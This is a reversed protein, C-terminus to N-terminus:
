AQRRRMRVVVGNEHCMTLTQRMPPNTEYDAGSKASEICDFQQVLRFILHSAQTVAFQQGLCARPGGNFPLFEWAAQKRDAWREPRFVEADPGWIDTRRHVTWVSYGVPQHRKIYIPSRGDPGGGTPIITDHLAVRANIPVPPFLRLAENVVARLYPLNQIDRLTVPEAGSAADLVEEELKSWVRKDRALFYVISSLLSATDDRSALLVNVLQDRLAKEDHTQKALEHLFCYRDTKQKELADGKEARIAKTIYYQVFNHVTKNAKRFRSPNFLWYFHFAITRKFLVHQAYDFAEAFGQRGEFSASEGFLFDTAADLALRFFLQQVDFEQGGPPLCDIFRRAHADFWELPPVQDKTFQPRLMRRSHEWRPGDSTFIGDGFLPQYQRHRFHSLGFSSFQTALIAQINEPDSTLVVKTGMIPLAITSGYQQHLERLRAAIQGNAHCATFEKFLKIGLFGGPVVLVLASGAALYVASSLSLNVPTHRLATM